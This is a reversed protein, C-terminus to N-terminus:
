FVSFSIVTLAFQLKYALHTQSENLAIWVWKIQLIRFNLHYFFYGVCKIYKWKLQMSLMFVKSYYMMKLASQKIHRNFSPIASSKM